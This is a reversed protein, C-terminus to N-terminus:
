VDAEHNRAGPNSARRRPRSRPHRRPLADFPHPPGSVDFSAFAEGSTASPAALRITGVAASRRRALQDGSAGPTLSRDRVEGPQHRSHGTRAPLRPGPITAGTVMTSVSGALSAPMTMSAAPERSALASACSSAGSTSAGTSPATAARSAHPSPVAALGVLRLLAM